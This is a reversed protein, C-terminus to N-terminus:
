TCDARQLWLQSYRTNSIAQPSLVTLFPISLETPVIGVLWARLSSKSGRADIFFAPLLLVHKYGWCQPPLSLCIESTWWCSPRAFQHAGREAPSRAGFYMLYVSVLSSVQCWGISGHKSMYMHACVDSMYSSPLFQTLFSRKRRTWRLHSLMIARQM